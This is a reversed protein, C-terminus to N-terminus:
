GYMWDSIRATPTTGYLFNSNADTKGGRDAYVKPWHLKAPPIGQKKDDKGHRHRWELGAKHTGAAEVDPPPIYHTEPAFGVFGWKGSIPRTSLLLVQRGTGETAVHWRGKLVRKTGGREGKDKSSLHVVLTYGMGVLPITKGKPGGPLLKISPPCPVKWFEKFLKAVKRGAQTKQANQYMRRSAADMMSCAKHSSGPNAAILRKRYASAQKSTRNWQKYKGSRKLRVLRRILANYGRATVKRRM